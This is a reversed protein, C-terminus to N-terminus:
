QEADVALRRDADGYVLLLPRIQDAEAAVKTVTGRFQAFFDAFHSKFEHDPGIGRFLDFFLDTAEGTKTQGSEADGQHNEVQEQPLPLGHGHDCDRYRDAQQGGEGNQIQEPVGQVHQGQETQRERDPQEDVVANDYELRHLARQVAASSRVRGHALPEPTGHAGYCCGTQRGGDDEQRQRKDIDLGTHRAQLFLKLDGYACEEHRQGGGKQDRHGEHRQQRM